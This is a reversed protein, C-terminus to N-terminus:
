DFYDADVMEKIRKEMAVAVEDPLVATSEVFQDDHWKARGVVDGDRSIVVKGEHEIAVYRIGKSTVEVRHEKKKKTSM